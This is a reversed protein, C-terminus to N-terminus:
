NAYHCAALHDASVQRLLPKESKCQDTALACRPHYPCGSPPSFPSPMEGPLAVLPRKDASTEPVKLISNILARTYPHKPAEFLKQAEAQEVVEGLYLVMVTDSLFQVVGLNHSIFIYAMNLERQLDQLLQIIQIQVSVDLASIPEDCVVLKPRLALARAIGVRQQQGGSLEFPYAQGASLPLGVRELVEDVSKRRETASGGIKQIIMADEIADAVTMRSSLSALPNQFIIQMDRRQVRMEKASLKALDQGQFVVRGENTELLRLVMRGLTSKGSGSEGVLGLTQGARLEFSVREVAHLTRGRVKFRKSVGEVQLLPEDSM